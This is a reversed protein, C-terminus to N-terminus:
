GLLGCSITLKSWENIMEDTIHHPIFKYETPRTGDPPISVPEIYGRIEIGRWVIRAVLSAGEKEFPVAFFQNAELTPGIVQVKSSGRGDPLLVRIQRPRSKEDLFAMESSDTWYKELGSM